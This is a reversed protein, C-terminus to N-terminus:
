TSPGAEALSRTRYGRIARPRHSLRGRRRGNAPFVSLDSSPANRKGWVSGGRGVLGLGIRASRADLELAEERVTGDIQRGAEGIGGLAEDREQQRGIAADIERPDGLRGRDRAEVQEVRQRGERQDVAQLTAAAAEVESRAAAHRTEHEGQGAGLPM